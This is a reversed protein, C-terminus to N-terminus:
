KKLQGLDLFARDVMVVFPREEFSLGGKGDHEIVQLKGMGYGMPGRSYYHAQLRYPVARQPRAKRITFCEPGYGTTVDAYLDGGSPLTPQSYYAHGGKGDYIHFDVDNADTEWNLVFRVSPAEEKSGGAAALLAQIEAKRGPEAKIWAAAILGLDEALIREVGRFRGSPYREAMGKAMAEFAKRHEKKKLLAFAYLRHSSPHDPRNEVAKEYTDVALDLGGAVRELREGAYRRLDARGPFLDIISGYARSAGVWDRLAELAEGLAVIAMVDGPSESLWARAKVAAADAKGARILEMVEKFRGTYPLPGEQPREMAAGGRRAPPGTLERRQAREVRHEAREVRELGGGSVRAPAMDPPEAPSPSPPPLALQPMVSGLMGGGGGGGSDAASAMFDAAAGSAMMAQTFGEGSGGSPPAEAPAAEMEAGDISAALGGMMAPAAASKSRMFGGTLRDLFSPSEPAPQPKLTVSELPRQVVRVANDAVTLIDALAKRDIGYRAYDDLTELVLLSTFRSVVRHKVSLEVIESRVKDKAERGDAMEHKRLLSAIKAKAWAREVLPRESSALSESPVHVARRGVTLKFASGEPLEAFVFVDEKAQLGDITKPWVWSAGEVAVELGSSTAETLKAAITEVPLRGDAVAGDRPLGATVLRKLLDEDRIGGVAVADLREAGHAKLKKVAARLEEAGTEGQTAVGDTILLVRKAPRKQLQRGAWGVAGMLSSAGLAREKRIRALADDGFGGATGEYVLRVTQDFSAVTVPTEPGSGKALGSILIRLLKMQPDFGLIRSASTDFLVLLSAVAEPQTKLVPRVRVVALNKHRLGGASGAAPLSAEFDKDPVFNTRKLGGLVKGGASVEADLAGVEPLGKLPLSYPAEALFLEQSYSIILEKTGKAPIPFVRASFENASAVELLAPDQRRHLFDEYVARAKGRDVVEGEQWGADTKMAFRSVSAGQPMVVRFQGEIVRDEPNQFALQLETFALPGEVVARATMRSLKLGTGDSATLSVPAEPRAAEIPGLKDFRFPAPATGAAPQAQAPLAGVVLAVAQFAATFQALFGKRNM